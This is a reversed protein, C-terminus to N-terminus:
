ARVVLSTNGEIATLRDRVEYVLGMHVAHLQGDYRRRRHTSSGYLHSSSRGAAIRAHHRRTQAGAGVPQVRRCGEASPLRHGSQRSAIALTEVVCHFLSPADSGNKAEAGPMADVADSAIEAGLAAALAVADLQEGRTLCGFAVLLLAQEGYFRRYQRLRRASSRAHAATRKGYRDGMQEEANLMVHLRM